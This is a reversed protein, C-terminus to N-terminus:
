LRCFCHLGAELNLTCDPFGSNPLGVVVVVKLTRFLELLGKLSKDFILNSSEVQHAMLFVSQNTLFRKNPTLIM